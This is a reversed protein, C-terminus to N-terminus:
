DPIVLNNYPFHPFAPPIPQRAVFVPLQGPAPQRWLEQFGPHDDNAVIFFPIPNGVVRAALRWGTFSMGLLAVNLRWNSEM